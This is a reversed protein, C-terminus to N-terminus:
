LKIQTVLFIQQPILKKTNAKTCQKNFNFSDKQLDGHSNQEIV